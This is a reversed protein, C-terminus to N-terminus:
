FQALLVCVIKWTSFIGYSCILNELLAKEFNQLFVYSKGPSRVGLFLYKSFLRAPHKRFTIITKMYKMYIKCQLAKNGINCLKANNCLYHIHNSLIKM